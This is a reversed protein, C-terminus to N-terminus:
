RKAAPYRGATGTRRWHLSLKSFAFSARKTHPHSYYDLGIEGIMDPKERLVFERFRFLREESDDEESGRPHIGVAIKFSPHKKKQELAKRYDEINCCIPIAGEVQQKLMREVTEERDADSQHSGPYEDLM